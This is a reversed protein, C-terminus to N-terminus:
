SDYVEIRTVWDGNVPGHEFSWKHEYSEMLRAKIYRIGTGEMVEDDSPPKLCPSRFEYIRKRKEHTETLHFSVPRQGFSNHTIANELLNRIISPPLTNGPIIGETILKYKSKKRYGMVKLYSKCCEIEVALPILKKESINSLLEFEKALANLFGVGQVPDSEIWEMASTISNLVFHPQIKNKVLELKLRTNTLEAEKRDKYQRFMGLCITFLLYVLLIAYTVLQQKEFFRIEYAVTLAALIILTSWSHRKRRFVGYIAVILLWEFTTTLTDYSNMKQMAATVLFPVPLTFWAIKRPFKLAEFVALQSVICIIYNILIVAHIVLAVQQYDLNLLHYGLKNLAYSSFLLCLVGIYLNLLNERKVFFTALFYLGFIVYVFYSGYTITNWREYTLLWDLTLIKIVADNKQFIHKERIGSLKLLHSGNTLRSQPIHFISRYHGPEIEVPRGNETEMKGESGILLDDWYLKYTGPVYNLIYFSLLSKDPDGSIELKLDYEFRSVDDETIDWIGVNWKEKVPERKILNGDIDYILHYAEILRIEIKQTEETEGARVFFSGSFFLLISFFGLLWRCRSIPLPLPSM